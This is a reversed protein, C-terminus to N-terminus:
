CLAASSNGSAARAMLSHKRAAVGRRVPTTGGRGGYRNKERATRSETCTYHAYRQAYHPPLARASAPPPPAEVPSLAPPVYKPRRPRAVSDVPVERLVRRVGKRGAIFTVASELKRAAFLTGLASIQTKLRM